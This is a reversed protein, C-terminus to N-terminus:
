NIVLRPIYVGEVKGSGKLWKNLKEAVDKRIKDKGDKLFLEDRRVAILVQNVQDRAPALNRELYDATEKTDCEAVLEIQAVNVVGKPLKGPDPSLELTFDGLSKMFTKKHEQEGREKELFEQFSKANKEALLQQERRQVQERRYHQIIRVGFFLGLLLCAFFFIAMKRTAQDPSRVSRFIDVAGEQVAKLGNQLRKSLPVKAKKAPAKKKAKAM